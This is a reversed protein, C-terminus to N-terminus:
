DGLEDWGWKEWQHGYTRQMQTEIGAKCILEETGNKQIGCILLIIHYKISSTKRRRAESRIIIELDIWMEASPVIKNRQLASYYKMAHVYWMKKIWEETLPCKPQNWIRVITFLAVTFLPTCTDKQYPKRQTDAWSLSQQTM